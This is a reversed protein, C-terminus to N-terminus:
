MWLTLKEGKPELGKRLQEDFYANHEYLNALQEKYLMEPRNHNKYDSTSTFVNPLNGFPSDTGGFEGYIVENLFVLGIAGFALWLTFRKARSSVMLRVQHRQQLGLAYRTLSSM